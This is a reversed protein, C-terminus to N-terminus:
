TEDTSVYSQFITIYMTLQSFHSSGHYTTFKFIGCYNDTHGIYMIIYFFIINIFNLLPKLLFINYEM